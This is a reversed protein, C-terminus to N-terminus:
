FVFKLPVMVSFTQRWDMGIPHTIIVFIAAIIIIIGKQGKRRIKFLTVDVGKMCYCFHKTPCGNSNLM